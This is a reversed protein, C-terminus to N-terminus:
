SLIVKKNDTEFTLHKGDFEMNELYDMGIVVHGLYYKILDEEFYLDYDDRRYNRSVHFDTTFKATEKKENETFMNVSITQKINKNKSKFFDTLLILKDYDM